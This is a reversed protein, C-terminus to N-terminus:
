FGSLALGTQNVLRHYVQYPEQGEPTDNAAVDFVFDIPGTGTVQNKFRKGSQFGSECSATSSALICGQLPIPNPGSSTAANDTLVTMGPTNAEPASYAVRGNTVAGAAAPDRDYIVSFGTEGDAVTPGVVVNATNWGTIVAAQASMAMCLPAAAVTAILARKTSVVFEEVIAGAQAAVAGLRTRVPNPGHM